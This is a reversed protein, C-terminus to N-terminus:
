KMGNICSDLVWGKLVFVFNWYNNILEIDKDKILQCFYLYCKFVDVLNGIVMDCINYEYMKVIKVGIFSWGEFIINKVKCDILVFEVDFYVLGYNSKICGYDVQKGDEMFFICEVFVNGYNGVMNRVWLFFGGGNCFNSKYVFLSGCGLIIDGGGDLECFEMYIIGNVQLVDGLGIIYVCYLVIREGNILLGEVQGKLDIVIIMDEIVIDKCNDFMFVVWCFFFIGFWENIKVILLYFNFVENNVYYVKIDIM